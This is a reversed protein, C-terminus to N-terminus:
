LQHLDGREELGINELVQWISSKLHEPPKKSFAGAYQNMAQRCAELEDRLAPYKRCNNEVLHQEEQSLLGLCYDQLVGSEIYEQVNFMSCRIEFFKLPM